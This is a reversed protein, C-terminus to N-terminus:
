FLSVRWILEGERCEKVDTLSNKKEQLYVLHVLGRVYVRVCVCVCVCVCHFGSALFAGGLVVVGFVVWFVDFMGVWLGRM